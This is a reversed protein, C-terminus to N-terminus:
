GAIGRATSRDHHTGGARGAAGSILVNVLEVLEVLFYLIDEFADFRLAFDEIRGPM